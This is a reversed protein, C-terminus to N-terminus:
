SWRDKIEQKLKSMIHYSWTDNLFYVADVNDFDVFQLVDWESDCTYIKDEKIGGLLMRVRYDKSRVGGVIIRNINKDNLFEFDTDYLWEEVEVNRNRADNLDDMMIIVDKYMSDDKVFQFVQSCATPNQGKALASVIRKGNIDERVYRTGLLKIKSLTDQILQFNYGMELLLSIVGMANYTNPVTNFNLEFKFDNLIFYGKEFDYESIEYKCKPRSYGCECSYDGIHSYKIHSYKILKHCKPCLPMDKNMNYLGDHDGDMHKMGYFTTNANALTSVLADDANIILKTNPHDDLTLKIRSAMFEPTGNKEISDRFLNTIIMYNVDIDKLIKSSTFEDTEIIAMDYLEKNFLTVGSMLFSIVGPLTNFTKNSIVKYGQSTFFDYLMNCTTSKGNTGTVAIIKKPKNLYYKFNPCVKVAVNAPFYPVNKKFIKLAVVTLKGALLALYFTFINNRLKNVM